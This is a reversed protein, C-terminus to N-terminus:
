TPTAGDSVKIELHSFFSTFPIKKLSLVSLCFCRQSFIHCSWYWVVQLPVPAATTLFATTAQSFFLLYNLKACLKCAYNDQAWARWYLPLYPSLFMLAIKIVKCVYNMIIILINPQTLHQSYLLVLIANSFTFNYPMIEFIHYKKLRIIVLTKNASLFSCM